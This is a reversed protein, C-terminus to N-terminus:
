SCNTLEDETEAFKIVPNLFLYKQLICALIALDNDGFLFNRSGDKMM